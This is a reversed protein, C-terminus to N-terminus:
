FFGKQKKHQVLIHLIIIGLPFFSSNYANSESKYDLSAKKKKKTTSPSSSLAKVKLWDVLRYKQSSNKV